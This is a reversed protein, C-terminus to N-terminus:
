SNKKEFIIKQKIILIEDRPERTQKNKIKQELNQRIKCNFNLISSNIKKEFLINKIM